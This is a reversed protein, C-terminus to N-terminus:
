RDTQRDAERERVCVDWVPIFFLHLFLFLIWVPAGSEM